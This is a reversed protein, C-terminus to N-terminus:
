HLTAKLYEQREAICAVLYTCQSSTKTPAAWHVLVPHHIGHEIQGAHVESCVLQRAGGGGQLDAGRSEVMCESMSTTSAIVM